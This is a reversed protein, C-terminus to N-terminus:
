SGACGLGLALAAAVAGGLLSGMRDAAQRDGLVAQAQHDLIGLQAAAAALIQAEPNHIAATLGHAVEVDLVSLAQVQDDGPTVQGAELVQM